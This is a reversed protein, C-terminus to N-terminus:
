CPCLGTKSNATSGAESATLRSWTLKLSSSTRTSGILGYLTQFHPKPCLTTWTLRVSASSPPSRVKKYAQGHASVEHGLVAVADLLADDIEGVVQVISVAAFNNSIHHSPALLIIVQCMALHCAQEAQYCHTRRASGHCVREQFRVSLPM